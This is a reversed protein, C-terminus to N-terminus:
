EVLPRIEAELDDTSLVGAHKVRIVGEADIIYLTPQTIIEYKAGVEDTDAAFDWPALDWSHDKGDRFDRIEQESNAGLSGIRSGLDVSLVRIGSTNHQEHFRVFERTQTVCPPCNVGMLDLVLITGNATLSSLSVTENDITTLTFPHAMDGVKSGYPSGQDTCGALAVALVLVVPVFSRAKM